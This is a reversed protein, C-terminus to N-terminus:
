KEPEVRIVPETGQNDSHTQPGDVKPEADQGRMPQESAEAFRQWTAAMKLLRSRESRQKAAAALARCRAAHARFREADEM